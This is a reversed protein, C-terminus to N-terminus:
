GSNVGFQMKSECTISAATDQAAFSSIVRDTWPNTSFIWINEQNSESCQESAERYTRSRRQFTRPFTAAGLISCVTRIKSEYAWWYNRGERRRDTLTDNSYPSYKAPIAQALREYIGACVWWHLATADSFYQPISQSFYQMVSPSFYQKISPLLPPLLRGWGQIRPTNVAHQPPHHNPCRPLPGVPLCPLKPLALSM